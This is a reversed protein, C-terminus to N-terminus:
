KRLNNCTETKLLKVPTKENEDLHQEKTMSEVKHSTLVTRTGILEGRLGLEAERVKAQAKRELPLSPICPFIIATNDSCLKKKM